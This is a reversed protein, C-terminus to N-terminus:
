LWSGEVSAPVWPLPVECPVAHRRAAGGGSPQSQLTRTFEWEMPGHKEHLYLLGFM